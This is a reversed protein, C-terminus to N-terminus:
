KGIRRNFYYIKKQIRARWNRLKRSKRCEDEIFAKSSDNLMNEAFKYMATNEKEIHRDLLDTYSIANAIIDLRAEDNGNKFEELSKELNPWTFGEWIM